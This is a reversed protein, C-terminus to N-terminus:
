RRGREAADKGFQYGIEYAAFCLAIFMLYGGEISKLEDEQLVEFGRIENLKNKM